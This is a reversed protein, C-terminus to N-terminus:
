PASAPAPPWKEQLAEWTRLYISGFDYAVTVTDEYHDGDDTLLSVYHNVDGDPIIYSLYTSTMSIAAMYKTDVADLTPRTGDPGIVYPWEHLRLCDCTADGV